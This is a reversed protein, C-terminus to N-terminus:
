QCSEVGSLCGGEEEGRGGRGKKRTQRNSRNASTTELNLKLELMKLSSCFRSSQPGTPLCLWRKLCCFTLVTAKSRPRQVAPRRRPPPPIQSTNQRKLQLFCFLVIGVTCFFLGGDAGTRETRNCNRLLCLPSSEKSNTGRLSQLVGDIM